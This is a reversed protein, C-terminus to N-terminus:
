GRDRPSPSTYLLCGAALLAAGGTGRNGGILLVHGFNGKHANKSRTPLRGAAQASIRFGIGPVSEFVAPPAGLDALVLRGVYNVAAGTLLGPKHAIFTVTTEARIAAGVIAGTDADVGSPVDLSLVPM